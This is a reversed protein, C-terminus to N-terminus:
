PRPCPPLAPNPSWMTAQLLQSTRPNIAAVRAMSEAFDPICCFSTLVSFVHYPLKDPTVQHYSSLSVGVVHLTKRFFYYSTGSCVIM